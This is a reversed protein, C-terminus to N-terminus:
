KICGSGKIPFGLNFKVNKMLTRQWKREKYKEELVIACLPCEPGEYAIRVGRHRRYDDCSQCDEYEKTNAM